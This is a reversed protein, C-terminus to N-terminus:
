ARETVARGNTIGAVAEEFGDAREEPLVVALTVDTGYEEETVRAEFGPLAAKVAELDAYRLGIRVATTRVFETLAVNQLADKVGGSYARSLGGKGLKTGGFYRTVVAVVDGVGSGLLVDLMPRGATGHPEGADSMGARSSDGPPGVVYAWCNHTADAYEEAVSAIFSRADEVSGARGITAIFRSKLIAQEVRVTEAPIPYRSPRSL